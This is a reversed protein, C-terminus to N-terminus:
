KHIRGVALSLMDDTTRLPFAHVSRPIQSTQLDERPWPHTMTSRRYRFTSQLEAHIPDTDRWYFGCKLLIKPRTPVTLVYTSPTILHKFAVPSRAAFSLQLSYKCTAHDSEPSESTRWTRFLFDTTAAPSYIYPDSSGMIILMISSCIQTGISMYARLFPAHM